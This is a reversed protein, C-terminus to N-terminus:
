GKKGFLKEGIENDDMEVLKTGICPRITCQEIIEEPVGMKVAQAPTVVAKKTVDVNCVIKLYEIVDAVDLSWARNGVKDVMQYGKVPQNKSLRQFALDEYADCAQTIVEKARKLNKLMWGLQESNLESDFAYNAADIANMIATQAAPCQTFAKCHLCQAGSVSEQKPNELAKLIQERYELLQQRSMYSIRLPGHPHYARPQYIMFEITQTNDRLSAIAHSILTWNNEPEVIRWGYKLDAVIMKEGCDDFGIFDARGRISAWSTDTEVNGESVNRIQEVYGRVNDAMEPTIFYGNPAQKGIFEQGTKYSQEAFWHAANGEEAIETSERFPEVGNLFSSGNCAMFRPLETATLSVAM